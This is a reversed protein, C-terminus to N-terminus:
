TIVKGSQRGGGHRRTETTIGSHRDPRSPPPLEVGVVCMGDDEPIRRVVLADKALRWRVGPALDVDLTIHKGLNAARRMSMRLGIGGPSVDVLECHGGRPGSRWRAPGNVPVRIHRRRDLYRVIM